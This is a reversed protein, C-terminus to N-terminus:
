RCTVVGYLPRIDPVNPRAVHLDDAAVQAAEVTVCM